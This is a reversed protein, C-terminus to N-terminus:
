GWRPFFQRIFSRESAKEKFSHSFLPIGAHNIVILLETKKAWEQEAKSPLTEPLQFISITITFYVFIQALIFLLPQTKILQELITDVILGAASGLGMALVACGKHVIAYKKTILESHGYLFGGFVALSMGSGLIIPFIRLYIFKTDLRPFLIPAGAVLLFSFTMLYIGIVISRRRGITDYLIGFPISLIITTIFLVILFEILNDMFDPSLAANNQLLIVTAYYINIMM